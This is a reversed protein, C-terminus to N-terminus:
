SCIMRCNFGMGAMKELTLAEDGLTFQTYGAQQLMQIVARPDKGRATLATGHLELFILPHLEQLTALGAQIVEFEFGEIDMKLHTPRFGTEALLSALSRQPVLVTDSRQETPVIFYDGGLPGTTLMPLVGDVDGMAVNMLRVRDTCENLKLTVELIGAAGPSAEVCIVQAKPGGYRLAALAFFGYHAGVDLLRIGDPCNQVFSDLESSQIPDTRFVEFHDRAAPHCRPQWDDRVQVTQTEGLSFRVRDWVYEFSKGPKRLWNRISRPLLFRILTNLNMPLSYIFIDM